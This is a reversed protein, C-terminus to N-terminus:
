VHGEGKQAKMRCYTGASSYYIASYTLGNIAKITLHQRRDGLNSSYPTGHSVVEGLFEETFTTVARLDQRVYAFYHQPKEFFFDYVEVSSLEDSSVRCEKPVADAPCSMAGNKSRHVLPGTDQWNKLAGLKEVIKRYEQLTIM